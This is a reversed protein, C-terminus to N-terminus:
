MEAPDEEEEEDGIAIAIAFSNSILKLDAVM